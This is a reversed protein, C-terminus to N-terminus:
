KEIFSIKKGCKASVQYTRAKIAQELQPPSNFHQQFYANIM